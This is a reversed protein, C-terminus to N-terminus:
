NYINRPFVWTEFPISVGGQQHTLSLQIRIRGLDDYALAFASVEDILDDGDITLRGGSLDLTRGGRSTNFTFPLSIGGANGFCDYCIRFENTLRTLALQAKQTLVASDRAMLFGQVGQVVAWGGTGVLIGVILLVAIVEVLTFGGKKDPHRERDRKVM